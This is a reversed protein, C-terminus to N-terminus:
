DEKPPAPEESPALEVQVWDADEPFIYPPGPIVQPRQAIQAVVPGALDPFEFRVGPTDCFLRRTKGTEHLEWVGGRMWLSLVVRDGVTLTTPEACLKGGTTVPPRGPNILAFFNLGGGRHHPRTLEGTNWAGTVMKAVWQRSAGPSLGDRAMWVLAARPTSSTWRLEGGAAVQEKEVRGAIAQVTIGSIVLVGAERDYALPGPGPLDQLLPVLSPPLEPFDLLTVVTEPRVENPLLQEAAKSVLAYIEAETGGHGPLWNEMLTEHGADYLDGALSGSPRAYISDEDWLVALRPRSATRLGVDRFVQGALGVMGWASPDNSVDFSGLATEEPQTYFSFLIMGDVDQRAALAAAELLGAPRYPNPWSINWERIVLPKGAVKPGCIRRVATDPGRVALPNSADYCYEIEEPYSDRELPHAFYYNGGVFDVTDAVASLSAPSDPQTVATIPVKVGLSRLFSVMQALYERELSAAFRRVDPERTQFGIVDPSVGPLAVLGEELKEFPALGSEPGGWSRRLAETSGYRDRLWFNWRRILEERYPSHIQGWQKRTALLGNEDCIELLCITPDDCYRLGTYPNVHRQLLERAYEMQLEILRENFVAMPKAGRGLQDANVVGEAETFTRYALLDLYVHLGRQRCAYIWYDLSDLAVPSLRERLGARAPPLLGTAGDIHHLRVLNLGARVFLDTVQDIIQHPQFVAEKAVNLGWFRGRDGNTFYFHGDSGVFLFGQQEILDPRPAGLNLHCSPFVRPVLTPSVAAAGLNLVALIGCLLVLIASLIAARPGPKM